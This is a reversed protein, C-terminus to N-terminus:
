AGCQSRCLDVRDEECAALERPRARAGLEALCGPGVARATCNDVWAPGRQVAREVARKLEARLALEPEGGGGGHDDCDGWCFKPAPAPTSLPRAAAPQPLALPLAFALFSALLTTSRFMESERTLRRAA